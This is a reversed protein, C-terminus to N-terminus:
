LKISDTTPLMCNPRSKELQKDVRHKKIPSNLGSTNLATISLSTTVVAMKNSRKKSKQLEM